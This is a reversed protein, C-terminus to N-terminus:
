ESGAPRITPHTSGSITLLRLYETEDPSVRAANPYVASAFNLHRFLHIGTRSNLVKDYGCYFNDKYEQLVQEQFASSFFRQKNRLAIQNLRSFLQLKEDRNLESVRQMELIIACLRQYHDTINDYSENILGDFTEFGYSRLYKLSGATATLIFPKGCAIPRLTKETLHWRTDDFLTELVVEIGCRVYDNSVYDASASASTTNLFFNNELSKSSIAFAPNNFVHDTYSVGSDTPNFGMLCYSSLMSNVVLEAFKLRYERTGSWARNYILFDYEVNSTLLKPDVEAYRFWDRAILAHSWVYVLVFGDNEYLTTQSSNLESHTLLMLDYINGYVSQLRLGHMNYAADVGRFTSLKDFHLIKNHKVEQKLGENNYYHYDLPEQDHCVVTPTTIQKLTNNENFLQTLDSLKKSGHPTWRYITINRNVSDHLYHYLKDLPISM